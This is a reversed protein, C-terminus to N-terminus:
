YRIVSPTRIADDPRSKSIAADPAIVESQEWDGLESVNRFKAVKNTTSVGRKGQTFYGPFEGRHDAFRPTRRDKEQEFYQRPEAGCLVEERYGLTM